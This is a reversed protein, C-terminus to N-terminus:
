SLFNVRALAVTIKTYSAKSKVLQAKEKYSLAAAECVNGVGIQEQVFASKALDHEKIIDELKEQSYFEIPVRLLEALELMGKEESKVWASTIAKISKLSYDAELLAKKLAGFLDEKKIGSRCGMGVVISKPRLYLLPLATKAYTKEAVLVTGYINTIKINENWATFTIGKEGAKEIFEACEPLSDDVFFDIKEGAVLNSNITKLLSFDEVSLNLQSSIADPAVLNNVDTATTIVPNAGIAKAIKRVLDNAGGIHGSLLSICNIGKEDMVIVAPDISKHQLLDKIDCVVIGTAMICIIADYKRWIDAFVKTTKEYYQINGNKHTSERNVREFLDAETGLQQALSFALNAGNATISVIALKM